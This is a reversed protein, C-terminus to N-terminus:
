SSVEKTTDQANAFSHTLVDHVSPRDRLEAVVSGRSLVIIRDSHAVVESLDSSCWVIGAAREALERMTDFIQAKAGLDIGRTPEDLLLVQAGGALLRALILKQQNGGSLAGAARTLRAPALGMRSAHEEAWNRFGESSVLGGRSAASFDGLAVNWASRQHLVLGQHKRDEPALAIGLDRAARPSRPWPRQRGGIELTGSAVRDAGALARLLRTRGSGVLGALGVIEGQRVTLEPADVGPAKLDTIRLLTDGLDGSRRGGHSAPSTGGLMARILSDRDWDRSRRTDVVVGERMVTVSDCVDLVADLDHSVYLISHEEAALDRIIRHLRRVDEPGLSATPEDMMIMRRDSALARMIELLQQASTSLSGARAGPDIGAGVRAAVRDFIQRGRRRRAVGLTTPTDGLLVNDLASLEPVTTLEQYIIALGAEAAARPSHPRVSRGWLEVHGSDYGVAGAVSKILTSKGAGNEGVLGRVEGPAIELSVSTLAHTGPYSKSVNTVRLAARTDNHM